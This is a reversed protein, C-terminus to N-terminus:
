LQSETQRLIEDRIDSEIIKFKCIPKENVLVVPLEDNYSLYQTEKLINVVKGEFPAVLKM